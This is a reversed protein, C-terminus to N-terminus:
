NLRFADNEEDEAGHPPLRPLQILVEPGQGVGCCLGESRCNCRRKKCCRPELPTVGRRCSYESALAKCSLLLVDALM